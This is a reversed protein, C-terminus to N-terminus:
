RDALLRALETRSRVDLKRYVSSLHKEVTKTSLFVSAAVERNTAGGAALTAIQREQPTLDDRTDPTARRVTDGTAQLEQRAREAFGVAGLQEFRDLASHLQTRAAARKGARRLREGNLLECRALDLPWPGASLLAMAEAYAEDADDEALLAGCRAAIAIAQPHQAQRAGRDFSRLLEAADHRRRARVYAEILDAEWFSFRAHVDRMDDRVGELLDIAEDIRGAVLEITALAGTAVMAEGQQGMGPAMESVRRARAAGSELALTGEITALFGLSMCTLYPIGAEESLALAESATSLAARWRGLCREIVSQTLLAKALDLVAADRRLRDVVPELAAAAAEVDGIYALVFPFEAARENIRDSSLEVGRTAAARAEAIDGEMLAQWGRALLVNQDDPAGTALAIIRDLVDRAHAVEHQEAYHDYVHFLIRSARVRDHEAIREAEAWCMDIWNALDGRVKATEVRGEVLDARLQPSAALALGDDLLAAAYDIRGADYAARGAAHLREAQRERDPTLRAARDLLRAQSEAGGRRRAGEAVRELAAAVQENQGVTAAARHWTARDDDWGDLASALAAHALRREGSTAAADVASRVLPHRFRLQEGAIRILGAAEAEDLGCADVGAAQLVSNSEGSDSVAAILLARQAAQSLARVRAGFAREVAAGGRLPDDLPEAGLRQSERLAAPIEILALPNGGTATILTAVVSPAIPEASSAEVLRRADDADLGALVLEPIGRAEFFQAESDRAGFLMVVGEAALRRTAFLLAERSTPDVWQADDVVCLLPREEAALALLGLTATYVAFRDVSGSRGLGLANELAQRQGDPLDSILGIAPRVLELLGSFVLDSESEVGLARLVRFDGAQEVVADLLSSKGVGPEGRIVLGGSEGRRAAELLAIVRAQEDVRGILAPM